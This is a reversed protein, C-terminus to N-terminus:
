AAAAERADGRVGLALREFSQSILGDVGWAALTHAEDATEVPWCLLVEARTKLERVVAADLLRRHISVGGLRRDPLLRLQRKSGVSHVVRTGPRGHFPALLRWDRACVTVDRDHARADLTQAVLAGLRRDHGKLDLMLRTDPRAAALLRDILLRPQWPPALAWRDWLIPLPGVTKLHRVELRGHFLHLDAEVHAIGCEEARRLRALDNGARHAVLFPSNVPKSHVVARV